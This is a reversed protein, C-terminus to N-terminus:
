NVKLMPRAIGGSLNSKLQVLDNIYLEAPTIRTYYALEEIYTKRKEEYKGIETASLKEIKLSLLSDPLKEKEMDDRIDQIPRNAIVLKGENILQLFRIRDDVDKIDKNLTDIYKQRRLVYFSLRRDVFMDILHYPTEFFLINGNTDICNLEDEPVKSVLKFINFFKWKNAYHLKRLDDKYMKIGYSINGDTSYNMWNQIINQEKLSDLHEEYNSYQINYPLDKIIIADKDFYLEYEGINYWSNKSANYVFNEPQIGEIEPRLIYPNNADVCKGFLLHYICNEIIDDISYSMARYSFGFGPSNTRYLLQMPIIPLFHLPEICEGEDILLNLLNIDEMFLSIYDDVKIDLYRAATSTKTDRLSPMQGLVKLPPYKITHKSALQEITKKISADGHLYHIGMAEGMFTTFKMKKSKLLGGKIAAWLIKRAGIRMGDM